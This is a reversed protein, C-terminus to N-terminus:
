TNSQASGGSVIRRRWRTKEEGRYNDYILFSLLLGGIIPSLSTIRYGAIALMVSLFATGLILFSLFGYLLPKPIRRVDQKEFGLGALFVEQKEQSLLESLLVIETDRFVNLPSFRARCKGCEVMLADLDVGFDTLKSRCEPCRCTKKWNM